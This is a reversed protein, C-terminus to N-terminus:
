VIDVHALNSVDMCQCLLDFVRCDHDHKQYLEQVPSALLVERLGDDYARYKIYVRHSVIFNDFSHM